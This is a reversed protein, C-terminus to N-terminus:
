KETMGINKEDPSFHWNKALDISEPSDNNVCSVALTLIFIIFSLKTKTKM